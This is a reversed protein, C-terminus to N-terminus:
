PVPKNSGIVKQGSSRLRGSGGHERRLGDDGTIQSILGEM